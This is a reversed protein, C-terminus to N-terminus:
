SETIQDDMPKPFNQLSNKGCAKIRQAIEPTDSKVMFAEMRDLLQARIPEIGGQAEVLHEVVVKLAILEGVMREMRSPNEM